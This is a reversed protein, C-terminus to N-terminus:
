VAHVTGDAVHFGDLFHHLFSSVAAFHEDLNCGYARGNVINSFDNQLIVDIMTNNVGDFGAVFLHNTIQVFGDFFEYFLNRLASRKTHCIIYLM